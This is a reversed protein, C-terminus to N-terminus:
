PVEIIRSFRSKRTFTEPSAVAFYGYGGRPGLGEKRILLGSKYMKHLRTSVSPTGLGLAKAVECASIGPTGQVVALIRDKV